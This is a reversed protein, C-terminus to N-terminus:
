TQRPWGQAVRLNAKTRCRSRKLPLWAAHTLLAATRSAATSASASAHSAQDRRQWWLRDVKSKRSESLNFAGAGPGSAAAFFSLGASPIVTVYLVTYAVTAPPPPPTESPVAPKSRLM